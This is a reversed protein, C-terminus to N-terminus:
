PTERQHPGSSGAVDRREMYVLSGAGPTFGAKLYLAEADRTLLATRRFGQLEPHSLMCETLWAGLGRGRHTPAIVVDTLYGYTALDTIVRGFGVLASGQYVGFCVSNTVARKLVAETLEQGWHTSRLLALVTGLDLRARQTSVVYEGWIWEIPEDNM